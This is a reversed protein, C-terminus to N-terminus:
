NKGTTLADLIRWSVELHEIKVKINDRAAFFVLALLGSIIPGAIIKILGQIDSYKYDVLDFGIIFTTFVLCLFIYGLVNLIRIISKLAKYGEIESIIITHNSNVMGTERNIQEYNGQNYPPVRNLNSEQLPPPMPPPMKSSSDQQM